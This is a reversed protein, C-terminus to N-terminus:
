INVQKSKDWGGLVFMKGNLSAACSGWVETNTDYAFNLDDDVDGSSLRTMIEFYMTTLASKGNLGIVM